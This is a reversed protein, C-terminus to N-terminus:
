TVTPTRSHWQKLRARWWHQICTAAKAQAVAYWFAAEVGVGLLFGDAAAAVALNPNM